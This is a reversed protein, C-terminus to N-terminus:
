MLDLLGNGIEMSKLKKKKRFFFDVDRWAM